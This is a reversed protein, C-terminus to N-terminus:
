PNIIDEKRGKTEILYFSGNKFQREKIFKRLHAEDYSSLTILKDFKKQNNRFNFNKEVVAFRRSGIYILEMDDAINYAKRIFDLACDFCITQFNDGEREERSDKELELLDFGDLAENKCNQCGLESKDIEGLFVEPRYSSFNGRKSDFDIRYDLFDVKARNKKFFEQKRKKDKQKKGEKRNEFTKTKSNELFAKASKLQTLSSELNNAFKNNKYKNKKSM